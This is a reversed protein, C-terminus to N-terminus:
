RTRTITLTEHPGLTDIIHRVEAKNLDSFSVAGARVEYRIPAQRRMVLHGTGNTAAM